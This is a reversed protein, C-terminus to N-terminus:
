RGIRNEIGFMHMLSSIKTGRCSFCNCPSYSYSGGLPQAQATKGKMVSKLVQIAEGVQKGLETKPKFYDRARLLPTMILAYESESLPLSSM